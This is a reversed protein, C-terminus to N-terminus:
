NPSPVDVIEGNCIWGLQELAAFLDRRKQKYRNSTGRYTEPHAQRQKLRKAAVLNAKLSNPRRNFFHSRCPRYILNYRAVRAAEYEKRDIVSAVAVGFRDVFIAKGRLEHAATVRHLRGAARMMANASVKQFRNLRPTNFPHPKSPDTIIDLSRQCIWGLDRLAQIITNQKQAKRARREQEHERYGPRMSRVIRRHRNYHFRYEQYSPKNYNAHSWRRSAAQSSKKRCALCYKATKPRSETIDSGCVVCFNRRLAREAARHARENKRLERREVAQLHRQTKEYKRRAAATQRAHWAPDAERKERLKAARRAYKRALYAASRTHDGYGYRRHFNRRHRRRNEQRATQSCLGSCTYTRGYGTIDHGCVICSRQKPQRSQRMAQEAIRRERKLIATQARTEREQKKRERREQKERRRQEIDARRAQWVPNAERQARVEARRRRKRAKENEKRRAMYAPNQRRRAEQRNRKEHYATERCLGSCTQAPWRGTIDHGCVICFKQKM